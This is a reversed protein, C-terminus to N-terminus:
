APYRIELAGSPGRHAAVLEREFLKELDVGDDYAKFVGNDTPLKTRGNTVFICDDITAPNWIGRENMNGMFSQGQQIPKLEKDLLVVAVSLNGLNQPVDTKVQIPSKVANFSDRVRLYITVIENDTLDGAKLNNDLAQKYEAYSCFGPQEIQPM